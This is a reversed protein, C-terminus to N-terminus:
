EYKIGIREKAKLYDSEIKKIYKTKITEIIDSEQIVCNCTKRKVVLGLIKLERISRQVTNVNVQYFDALKRVSPM